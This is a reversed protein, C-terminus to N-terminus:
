KLKKRRNVTLFLVCKGIVYFLLFGPIFPVELVTPKQSISYNVIHCQILHRPFTWFLLTQKLTITLVAYFDNFTITLQTECSFGSRFGHNVKTLVNNKDFHKHLEHCVIHELVKSLVSTLSVPRYNEALHKDGKKLVPSVHRSNVKKKCPCRFSIDHDWRAFVVVM